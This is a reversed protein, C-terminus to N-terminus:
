FVQIKFMFHLINSIIFGILVGYVVYTLFRSSDGKIFIIPLFLFSLLPINSLILSHLIVSLVIASLTVPLRYKYKEDIVMSKQIVAGCEPCISDRETLECGCANCFLM